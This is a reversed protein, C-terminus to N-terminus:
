EYKNGDADYYVLDTSFNDLNDPVDYVIINGNSVDYDQSVVVENNDTNTIILKATKTEAGNFWALQHWKGDLYESIVIVRDKDRVNTRQLKYGKGSPEFTAIGAKDDDYIGCLIFKGIQTETAISMKKCDRTERLLEEREALTTGKPKGMQIVIIAIALIAIVGVAFVSIVKKLAKKEM